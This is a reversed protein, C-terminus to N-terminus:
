ALSTMDIFESAASACSPMEANRSFRAGHQVPLYSRNVKTLRLQCGVVSDTVPTGQTVQRPLGRWSIWYLSGSSHRFFPLFLPAERVGHKGHGPLIRAALAPGDPDTAQINGLGAHPDLGAFLHMRAHGDAQLRLAVLEGALRPHAVACPTARPVQDPQLKGFLGLPRKTQRQHVRDIIVLHQLDALIGLRLGDVADIADHGRAEIRVIALGAIGLTEQEQGLGILHKGVRFLPREVIGRPAHSLALRQRGRVSPIRPRSRPRASGAAPHKTGARCGAATRCPADPAKTAPDPVASTTEVHM